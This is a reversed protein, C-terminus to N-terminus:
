HEGVNFVNRRTPIVLRCFNAQDPDCGDIHVYHRIYIYDKSYECRRYRGVVVDSEATRDRDRIAVAANVTARKV